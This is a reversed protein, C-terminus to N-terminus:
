RRFRADLLHRDSSVIAINDHEPHQPNILLNRCHPMVVSPVSLVAARAENRFAEFRDRTLTVDEAWREPLEAKIVTVKDPIEIEILRYSDPLDEPDLHVLIELMALAPHDACYVIGTGLHNWRGAAYKGGIGSLDAHNSIRWARM